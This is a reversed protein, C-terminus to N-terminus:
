QGNLRITQRGRGDLYSMEVSEVGIRLIRYRGAITDGEKGSMPPGQGDSLVAYTTRGDDKQVKGIFKLTIPPPPPPGSSAAPTPAVTAPREENRAPPASKPKFRFLNREGETPHPRPANLADLHVEPAKTGATAGGARAAQGGNRNSAPASVQSTGALTRYLVVGLVIALAGLLIQKRRDTGM